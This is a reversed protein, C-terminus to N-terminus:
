DRSALAEAECGRPTAASPSGTENDSHSEGRRLKEYIPSHLRRVSRQQLRSEEEEAEEPVHRHRVSSAAEWVPGANAEDADKSWYRIM